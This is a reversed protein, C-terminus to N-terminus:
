CGAKWYAPLGGLRETRYRGLLDNLRTPPNIVPATRRLFDQASEEPQNEKALNTPCFVVTLGKNEILLFWCIFNFISKQKIEIVV